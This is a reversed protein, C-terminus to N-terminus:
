IGKRNKQLVLENRIICESHYKHVQFGHSFLIQNEEKMMYDFLPALDKAYDFSRFRVQLM